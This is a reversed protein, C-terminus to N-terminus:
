HQPPGGRLREQAVDYLALLRDRGPRLLHDLGARQALPRAQTATAWALDTLPKPAYATVAIRRTTTDTWVLKYPETGQGLEVRRLGTDHAHAIAAALVTQGPSYRAFVPDFGTKLLHLVHDEELGLLAALPRGDLRLTFIRLTDRAAAWTAINTYFHLTSPRAAIASRRAGKWGLAELALLEDLTGTQDLTVRGGQEQLRRRRRRLDAMLRRRPRLYDDLTDHIDLYPAPPLTREALRYRATSRAAISAAGGDALHTLAVARPRTAYVAALLAAVTAEDEALIDAAPTHANATSRVIGARRVTPLVGCLHGDRRAALVDIRGGAFATAWATIWGPRQFPSGHARDALRDWEGALAAISAHHEVAIV